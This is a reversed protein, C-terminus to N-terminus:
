NKECILIQLIGNKNGTMRFLCWVLIRLIINIDMSRISYNHTIHSVVKFGNREMLKRISDPSFHQLHHYYYVRKFAHMIGFVRTLRVLKHIVSENNVTTLFVRRSAIESLKGVFEVPNEFHEITSM